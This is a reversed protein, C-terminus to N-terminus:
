GARHFEKDCQSMCAEFGKRSQAHLGDIHCREPLTTIRFQEDAAANSRNMMNQAVSLLQSANARRFRFDWGIRGIAASEECRLEHIVSNVKIEHCNLENLDEPSLCGCRQSSLDRRHKELCQQEHCIKSNITASVNACENREDCNIQCLLAHAPHSRYNMEAIAKSQSLAAHQMLTAERFQQELAAESHSFELRKKAATDIVKRQSLTIIGNEHLDRVDYSDIIKLCSLLRTEQEFKGKWEIPAPIAYRNVGLGAESKGSCASRYLGLIQTFSITNAYARYATQFHSSDLLFYRFIKMWGHKEVLQPLVMHIAENRLFALIKPDEYDILSRSYIATAVAVIALPIASGLLAVSSMVVACGAGAVAGVAAISSLSYLWAQKVKVDTWRCVEVPKSALSSKGFSVSSVTCMTNVRPTIIRLNTFPPMPM